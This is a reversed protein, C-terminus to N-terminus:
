TYDQLSVLTTETLHLQWRDLLNAAVQARYWASARADDIPAFEEAMAAKANVLMQPGVAQGELVQETVTARKPTAAMGGFAIKVHSIKGGAVSCCIAACVTSIDDEHRKSIKYVRLLPQETQNHAPIRVARIYESSALATKRYDLFFDTMPIEREGEASRLIVRADLTLLVPPLDGIPSASAINGGVTGQNRVQTSGFRHLLSALDPFLSKLERLCRSLSVAAGITCEGSTHDISLAQLAGLHQLCIIEPLPKLQQTVELALDTGGALLRAHPQQQLLADLSELTKPLWFDSGTVADAPDDLTLSALKHATEQEVIDFQDAQPNTLLRQCADVIPRYGTCRCLNGGIATEIQAVREGHSENHNDPDSGQRASTQYLAFLSMVFGPTCFGCQSGHLDVMAQQVPHLKGRNALHEVTIVQGGHVSALFTICANVSQYELKGPYDTSVRAVVVTCAGCDGSACGEKTGSLGRHERLYDLLTLDAAVADLQVTQENLLFRIM